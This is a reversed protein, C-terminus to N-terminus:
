RHKLRRVRGELGFEPLEDISMPHLGVVYTPRDSLDDLLNALAPVLSESGTNPLVVAHLLDFFQLNLRVLDLRGRIADVRGIPGSQALGGHPDALKM